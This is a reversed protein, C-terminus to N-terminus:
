PHDPAAADGTSIQRALEEVEDDPLAIGSQELRQALVEAIRSVSETGVDARTQAAIGSVKEIASADNQSMAPLRQEQETGLGGPERQAQGATLTERGQDQGHHDSEDEVVGIGVAQHSPETAAAPAPDSTPAEATSPAPGAPDNVGPQESENEAASM